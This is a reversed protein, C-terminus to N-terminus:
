KKIKFTEILFDQGRKLLKRTVPKRGKLYCLTEYSYIATILYLMFLILRGMVTLWPHTDIAIQILRWLERFYSAPQPPEVDVRPPVPPKPPCMCPTVVPPPPSYRNIFRRVAAGVSLSLLLFLPGLLSAEQPSKPPPGCPKIGNPPCQCPRQERPSSTQPLLEEPTDLFDLYSRARAPPDERNKEREPGIKNLYPRLPPTNLPAPPRSLTSNKNYAILARYQHHIAYLASHWWILVLFLFIISTLALATIDVTHGQQVAIKIAHGQQSIINDAEPIAPDM